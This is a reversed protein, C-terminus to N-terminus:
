EKNQMAGILRLRSPRRGLRASPHLCELLQSTSARHIRGRGQVVTPTVERLLQASTPRKWGLALSTIRTAARRGADAEGDALWAM